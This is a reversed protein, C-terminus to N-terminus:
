QLTHKLSSFVVYCSTYLSKKWCISGRNCKVGATAGKGRLLCPSALQVFDLCGQSFLPIKKEGSCAKGNVRGFM